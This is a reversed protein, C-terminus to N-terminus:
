FVGAKVIDIKTLDNGEVNLTHLNQFNGLFLSSNMDKLQNFSIDLVELKRQNYFTNYELNSINTCSLNLYKLNVFRELQKADLKGVFNMSLDLKEISPGLLAVIQRVNKLQHGSINLYSLKQFQEKSCRLESNMKSLHFVVDDNSDINIELANGMCSTDIEKIHACSLRTSESTKLSSFTGCDFRTVPSGQLKLETTIEASITTAEISKKKQKGLMNTINQMLIEDKPDLCKLKKVNVGNFDVLASSMLPMLIKCGISKLPNNELHLSKLKKNYKFISQDLTSISNDSLDLTILEGLKYFTDGNVISIRTHSLYLHKLNILDRFIDVHLSKEYFFNFSVDLTEVSARLKPIIKDTNPIKNNSMNVYTIKDINTNIKIYNSPNVAFQVNYYEIALSFHDMSINFFDTMSSMDVEEVNKLYINMDIGRQQGVINYNIRKIPNNELYLRHLNINNKFTDKDITQILNNSLDIKRVRNLEGFTDGELISIDNYSFYITELSKAGKFHNKNLGNIKNHSMDIHILESNNDFLKGEIMSINNHSFNIRTLKTAGKLDNQHLAIINNYSFDIEKVNPAEIFISGSINILKNNSTDLTLLSTFKLDASTLHEIKCGSIDFIEINHFKEILKEDLRIGSCPKLRKVKSSYGNDFVNKYCECASSSSDATCDISENDCYLVVFYFDNYNAYSDSCSTIKATICKSRFLLLLLVCIVRNKM